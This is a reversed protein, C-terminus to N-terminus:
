EKYNNLTKLLKDYQKFLELYKEYLKVFQDYIERYSENIINKKNKFNNINFEQIELNLLTWYINIYNQNVEAVQDNFYKELNIILDDDKKEPSWLVSNLYKIWDYVLYIYNDFQIVIGKFYEKIGINIQINSKNLITEITILNEHLEILIKIVSNINNMLLIKKNNKTSNNITNLKKKNKIVM